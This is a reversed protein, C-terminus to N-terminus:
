ENSLEMGFYASVWFKFYTEGSDPQLWELIYDIGLLLEFTEPSFPFAHIQSDHWGMRAFDAEAWVWKEVQYPEAM